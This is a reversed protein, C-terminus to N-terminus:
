EIRLWTYGYGNLKVTYSGDDTLETTQGSIIDRVNKYRSQKSSFKVEKEENSFNHVIVIERNNWTYRIALINDSDIDLIEWAGYGIEPCDKRLKVMKITWNLLSQLDSQERAVNINKYGFPGASIVPRVAKDNNTFGANKNENWQMPTRVSLREPLRLDDGMGIEDGYRLVPTSPLALLISYALEQHKRDNNMMPALRRRIGRDYLQM